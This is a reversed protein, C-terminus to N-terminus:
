LEGILELAQARLDAALARRTAYGRGSVDAILADLKESMAFSARAPRQEPAPAGAPAAAPPRGAHPATSM